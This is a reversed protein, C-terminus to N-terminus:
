TSATESYHLYSISLYLLRARDLMKPFKRADEFWEVRAKREQLEVYVVKLKIEEIKVQNVFLTEFEVDLDPICPAEDGTLREFMYRLTDYYYKFWGRFIQNKKMQLIFAPIRLPNLRGWEVIAGRQPLRPDKCIKVIDEYNVTTAPDFELM